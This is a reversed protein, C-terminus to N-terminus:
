AAARRPCGRRRARRSGFLEDRQRREAHLGPRLRQELPQHTVRAHGGHDPWSSGRGRAASRPRPREVTTRPRPAPTRPAGRRLARLLHSRLDGGPIQLHAARLLQPPATGASRIHADLPRLNRRGLQATKQVGRRAPLPVPETSQLPVVGPPEAHTSGGTTSVRTMYTAPLRGTLQRAPFAPARGMALHRSAVATPIPHSCHFLSRQPLSAQAYRCKAEPTARDAPQHDAAIRRLLALRHRPREVGPDGVEVGGGGIAVAERFCVKTPDHAVEPRPRLHDHAGLKPQPRVLQRLRRRRDASRKRRTQLPQPPIVDVHQVQVIRDHEGSLGPRDLHARNHVFDGPRQSCTTASPSALCAPNVPSPSVAASCSTTRASGYSVICVYKLTSLGLAPYSPWLPPWCSKSPSM